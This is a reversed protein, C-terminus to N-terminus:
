REGPPKELPKTVVSINKIGAAYMEDMVTAVTDVTAGVVVVAVVSPVDLIVLVLVCTLPLQSPIVCPFV